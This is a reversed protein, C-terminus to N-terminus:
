DDILKYIANRLPSPVEDRIATDLREWASYAKEPMNMGIRAFKILDVLDSLVFESYKTRQGDQALSLAGQIDEALNKSLIEIRDLVSEKIETM